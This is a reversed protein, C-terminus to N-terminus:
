RYHNRDARKTKNKISTLYNKHITDLYKVKLKRLLFPSNTVRKMEDCIIPPLGQFDLILQMGNIRYFKDSINMLIEKGFVYPNKWINTNTAVIIVIRM